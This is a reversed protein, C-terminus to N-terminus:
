TKCSFSEFLPNLLSMAVLEALADEVFAIIINIRTPNSTNVSGVTRTNIVPITGLKM